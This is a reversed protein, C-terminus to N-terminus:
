FLKGTPSPRFERNYQSLHPEPNLLHSEKGFGLRKNKSVTNAPPSSSSSSGSSPQASYRATSSPPFSSHIFPDFRQSPSSTPQSPSHSHRSSPHQQLSPPTSSTAPLVAKEITYYKPAQQQQQQQQQYSDNTIYARQQHPSSASATSSSQSGNDNIYTTQLENLRSLILERKSHHARTNAEDVLIESLLSAFESITDQQHKLLGRLLNTEKKLVEHSKTVYQLREEIHLVHKYMPGYLDDDNNGQQRVYNPIRSPLSTTSPKASKRKIHQLDEIEGRKFHPHKFEWTQNDSTLNSHIMDNVKHFGYMNLQRVFSQWNNHKFYQPLVFRSFSTPNSVSFLDGKESWSILNQISTDELM